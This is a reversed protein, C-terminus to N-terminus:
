ITSAIRGGARRRSGSATHGASPSRDAVQGPLIQTCYPTRSDDITTAIRENTGSEPAKRASRADRALLTHSLNLCSDADGSM